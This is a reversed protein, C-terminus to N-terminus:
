FALIKFGWRSLVSSGGLKQLEWFNM